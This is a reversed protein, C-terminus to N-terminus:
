LQMSALLILLVKMYARCAAKRAMAHLSIFVNGAIVNHTNNAGAKAFVFGDVFEHRVEAIEEFELYAGFTMQKANELVRPM